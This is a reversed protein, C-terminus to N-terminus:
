LAMSENSTFKKRKRPKTNSSISTRSDETNTTTEEEEEEEEDDDEDDEEEKPPERVRTILEALDIFKTGTSEQKRLRSRKERSSNLKQKLFFLIM